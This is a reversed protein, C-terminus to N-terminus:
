QIVPSVKNEIIAVTKKNKIIFDVDQKGKEQGKRDFVCFFLVVTEKMAAIRM